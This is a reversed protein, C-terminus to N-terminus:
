STALCTPKTVLCLGVVVPRGKSMPASQTEMQLSPCGHSSIIPAERSPWDFGDSITSQHHRWAAASARPVGFISLELGTASSAMESALGLRELSWISDCLINWSGCAQYFEGQNSRRRVGQRCTVRPQISYTGQLTRQDHPDTSCQCRDWHRLRAKQSKESSSLPAAAQESCAHANTHLAEICEVVEGDERSQANSVGVGCRM